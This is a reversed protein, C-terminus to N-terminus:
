RAIVYADTKKTLIIKNKHDNSLQQTFDIEAAHKMIELIQELPKDKLFVGSFRFDKIDENSFVIEVNYWRALKRAIDELRENYFTIRGEKWSSFYTTDVEKISVHRNTSDFCAMQGPVLASIYKGKSNLLEVAGSILTTEIYKEEPYASVNFQTGLVKVQIGKTEVIFPRQPDKEVKFFAEGEIKVQRTKKNFQTPYTIKTEANLWIHTGDALILESIQGPPCIVHNLLDDSKPSFYNFAFWSTGISILIAAAYKLLSYLSISQNKKQTSASIRQVFLNYEKDSDIYNGKRWSLAYANKYQYFLRRNDEGQELWDLFQSKEDPETMQGSVYKIISEKDM